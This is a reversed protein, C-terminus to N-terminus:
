TMCISAIPSVSPTTVTLTSFRYLARFFCVSEQRRVAFYSARAM